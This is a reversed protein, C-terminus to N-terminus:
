SFSSLQNLLQELSRTNLQRDWRDDTDYKGQEQGPYGHRGLFSHFVAVAFLLPGHGHRGLYSPFSCFDQGISLYKLTYLPHEM